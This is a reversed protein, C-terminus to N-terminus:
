RPRIRAPQLPHDILAIPQGGLRVGHPSVHLEQGSLRLADFGDVPLHDVQSVKGIRDKKFGPASRIRGYRKIGSARITQTLM